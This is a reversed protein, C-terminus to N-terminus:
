ASRARSPFIILSANNGFESKKKKKRKAKPCWLVVFSTGYHWPMPRFSRKRAKEENYLEIEILNKRYEYKKM